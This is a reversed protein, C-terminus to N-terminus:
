ENNVQEVVITHIEAETKVQTTGDVFNITAQRKGAENRTFSIDTLRSNYKEYLIRFMHDFEIDENSELNYDNKEFHVPINNWITTIIIPTIIPKKINPMFVIDKSEEPIFCFSVAVLLFIAIKSIKLM